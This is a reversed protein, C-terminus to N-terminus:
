WLRSTGPVVEMFVYFSCCLAVNAGALHKEPDIKQNILPNYEPYFFDAELIEGPVVIVPTGSM